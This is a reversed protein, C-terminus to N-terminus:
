FEYGSPSTGGALSKLQRAVDRLFDEQNTLQLSDGLIDFIESQLEFARSSTVESCSDYPPFFPLDAIAAIELQASM